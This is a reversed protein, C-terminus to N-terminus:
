NRADSNGETPKDQKMREPEVSPLALTEGQSPPLVALDRWHAPENDDPFQANIEAAATKAAIILAKRDAIIEEMVTDYDQGRAAHARRLSTMGTRLRIQDATADEIPQIYPWTPLVWEHAFVNIGRERLRVIFPDALPSAPDSWLRMQWLLVERYYITAFWQQLNVFAIKAQELAGRFGSFNTESADLLMVVLPVDMNIAILQQLQKAHDFFTPNPVNPSFGSITEGPYGTYMMGPSVNMMSRTQGAKCPDEVTERAEIVGDPMEFGLQRQRIMSWVSVQQQQVMKAFQIDAHMPVADAVPAFKTVGRTQTTRKPHYIHLVNRFGNADFAPIREAANLSISSSLQIDDRAFYYAVRRRLGDLQVGHICLKKLDGGLDRPTRCRHGEFIQQRGDSVKTAFIDGSVISDRFILRALTHLDRESSVDVDQASAEYAEFRAKLIADAEKDGTKPDYTFGDRLVNDVLRNVVAGAVLDDRDFQRGIAVLRFYDGESAYDQDASEGQVSGNIKPSFRNRKAAKYLNNIHGFVRNRWSERADSFVDTTFSISSHGNKRTM